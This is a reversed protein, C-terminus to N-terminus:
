LILNIGNVTDYTIHDKWRLLGRFMLVFYKKLLFYTNIIKQLCQETTVKM